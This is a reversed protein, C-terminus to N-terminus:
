TKLDLIRPKPQLASNFKLRLEIFNLATIFPRSWPRSKLFALFLPKLFKSQRILFSLLKLAKFGYIPRIAQM